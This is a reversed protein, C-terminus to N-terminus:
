EQEEKEEVDADKTFNTLVAHLGDAIDQLKQSAQATSATSSVFNEVGESIQKLTQLIQAFASAQQKISLAIQEAASSSVDASELVNEFLQQLNKSM